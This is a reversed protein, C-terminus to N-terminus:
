RHTWHGAQNAQRAAAYAPRARARAHYDLVGDPLALDSAAAWDLCTALLIDAGSFAEGLLWPRGDGLSAAVSGAQRKFYARAARVAEPSEGYIHPLGVHRRLVYLSTADLETMIFFCWEDYRARGEADAPMLRAGDRGHRMALHNVIAASETLTLAGDQLVPIKGRPSM